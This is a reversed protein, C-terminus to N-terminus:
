TLDNWAVAKRWLKLWWTSYLTFWEMRDCHPCTMLLRGSHSSRVSFVDKVDLVVIIKCTECQIEEDVWWPLKENIDRAEKVVRM